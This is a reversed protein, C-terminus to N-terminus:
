VVQSLVLLQSGCSNISVSSSTLGNQFCSHVQHLTGTTTGDTFIVSATISTGLTGSIVRASVEVRQQNEGVVYM